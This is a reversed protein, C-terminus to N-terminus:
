KDLDILNKSIDDINANRRHSVDYLTLSLKLEFLFVCLLKWILVQTRTFFFDDVDDNVKNDSAALEVVRNVADVFWFKVEVCHDLALKEDGDVLLDRWITLEPNCRM